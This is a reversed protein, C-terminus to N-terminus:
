PLRMYGSKWARLKTIVDTGFKKQGYMWHLVIASIYLLPLIASVVGIFLYPLTIAALLSQMSGLYCAYWVALLLLFLANITTLYSTSQKFPQFTIFLLAVAALVMTTYYIYISDKTVAGVLAERLM